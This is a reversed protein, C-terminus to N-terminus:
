INQKGICKQTVAITDVTSVLIRTSAFSGYHQSTIGNHMEVSLSSQRLKLSM